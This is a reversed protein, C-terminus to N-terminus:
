AAPVYEAEEKVHNLENRLDSAIVLDVERDFLDELFLKLGMYNDFSNEELEVIFDVDSEETEAGHIFSGFLGIREVELQKLKEQNAELEELIREKSLGM